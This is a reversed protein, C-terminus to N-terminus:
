RDHLDQLLSAALSEEAVSIRHQQMATPLAEDWPAEVAKGELPQGRSAANQVAALYDIAGFRWPQARHQRMVHNAIRLGPWDFDGHYLLHAGALALQSLLCRQAAGPMGDTCILPACEPGLCDAAIAVLNPNECVYVIRGSVDWSPPSRLLSRLSAYAPEGKGRNGTEKMSLNLFLAPRALENVLVGAAAWIDRAREAAQQPDADSGIGMPTAEDKHVPSVLRRRVALVLTALAQGDDLAHADGLVDAALQSRTVGNRPLRHLVAEARRCLEAAAAPDQRALRKLLGLGVPVRLLGVLDPHSCSETVRSWLVQVRLRAAALEVIPGDLRELADRLSAAIGAQQLATDVLGVDIGLSASFRQPRGLLSAMTAHEEASLGSIRVHEVTKGLPMREFRRRLRKRLSALHDGGLLRQLRLDAPESM